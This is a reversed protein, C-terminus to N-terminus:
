QVTATYTITDKYVGTAQDSDTAVGYQVIYATGESTKTSESGISAPSATGSAPTVPVALWDTSGTATGDKSTVRYGWAAKGATLSTASTAPISATTTDTATTIRNLANDDDADIVTLTYGSTSNTYVTVVSQFAIDDTGNNWSGEVVSNPLLKAYASSNLTTSGVTHGDVKTAATPAHVDVAGNDGSEGYYTNSDNNGTITMAIAPEVEVYLDVSGDVSPTDAFTFAPLAAVGLGAVVGLAAIIKTTKSM